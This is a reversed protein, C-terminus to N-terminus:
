ICEWEGWVCWRASRDALVLGRWVGRESVKVVTEWVSGLVEGDVERLGSSQPLGEHKRSLRIIKGGPSQIALKAPKDKLKVGVGNLQSTSPESPNSGAASSTMSMASAPRVMPNPSVPRMDSSNADNTSTSTASSSHQRVCFVYTEGAGLRYCQPQVVYLDQRTAHPTPHRMVFDYSPNEGSHYLPLALALPHVIDRSSLMLGKKGAYVKLTAVGEDGPLLAKIVYRKQSIETNPVTRYWSAQSLARKKTVNEADEYVDGDQDRLYRRAEVEAVIEVDTPVNISLTCIELGDMRIISTDYAHMSLGQRFFPPCTGPLALLVDPSMQPLMHQQVEEVPVHTWCAESPRALFYWAEAITASVSSYSARKPNTPSALSADMIRWENDVLIANWFHNPRTIADLDLDEGPTKLYGQVVEAHVGISLCMQLVLTAVEQSSGRKTQIVKRTDVPQSAHYSDFHHDEEWTIREACWIFIARLRQVGSRYPRCIFGTALSAATISSPVSTIFRAAKDVQSFSPNSIQFPEYVPRGDADEDGQLTEYLEEVPCIVPQDLMHCRDAREQRESPGPTNSRNVDRRTLIYASSAGGGLGMEAAADRGFSQTSMSSAVPANFAIGGAIGTLKTPSSPNSGAQSASITSRASAAGTKATDILKKFFGAKKAKPTTFGGLGGTPGRNTDDWGVASKAGQRPDHSARGSIISTPTKPRMSDPQTWMESRMSASTMPRTMRDRISGMRKRALSGASTASFAGASYGSMISQSTMATQSSFTTGNSTTSQVGSSSNTSNTKHTLTRSLSEDRLDLTSKRKAMVRPRGAMASTPRSAWPSNKPPPEPPDSDIPDSGQAERAQQMRRLRSEMRQVYNELRPPGDHFRDPSNHRSSYNIRAESFSSGGAGLGLSTLPRPGPRNEPRRFDDFAEPSWPNFDRPPDHSLSDQRVLTMDDLSSIVDDMAHRIMPPTHGSDSPPAPSPTRSFTQYRDNMDFPNPAPSAARGGIIRHPPPPPPPSSGIEHHPLPSPSRSPVKSPSGQQWLVTSPPNRPDYTPEAPQPVSTVQQPTTVSSSTPVKAKKYGNFPRRSKAREKKEQLQAAVSKSASDTKQLDPMPSTSQRIPVFDPGLVTVFNSPFSGMM